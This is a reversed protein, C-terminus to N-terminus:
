EYLQKSFEEAIEKLKRKAETLRQQMTDKSVSVRVKEM